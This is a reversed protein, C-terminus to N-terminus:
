RLSVEGAIYTAIMEGNRLVLRGAKDVGEYIGSIKELGSDISVQRGYWTDQAQWSDVFGSFGVTDFLRSTNILSQCMDTVCHNLQEPNWGAEILSITTKDFVHIPEINIGVGIV